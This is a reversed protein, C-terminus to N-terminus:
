YYSAIVGCAIKSGANGAPQSNFDDAKNHIVVTKGMIEKLTFRDTLIQMYAKGKVSLLPPLDGAHKPHPLGKPNYHSGTQPFGDGQCNEGEHIHFAFFGSANEPLGMVQAVVLVGEPRPYFEVKGKINGEGSLYAVGRM